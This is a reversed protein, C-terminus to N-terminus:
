SLLPTAFPKKAEKVLARVQKTGHARTRDGSQLHDDAARLNAYAIETRASPGTARAGHGSAIFTSPARNRGDICSPRGCDRVAGRSAMEWFLAADINV